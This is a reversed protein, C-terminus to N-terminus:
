HINLISLRNWEVIADNETGCNPGTVGCDCAVCFVWYPSRLDKECLEARKGCVPCPKIEIM